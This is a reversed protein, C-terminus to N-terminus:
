LWISFVDGDSGLVNLFVNLEDNVGDKATSRLWRHFGELIAERSDEGYGVETSEGRFFQDHHESVGVLIPTGLTLKKTKPM